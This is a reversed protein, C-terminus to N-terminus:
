VDEETILGYQMISKCLDEHVTRINWEYLKFIILILRMITNEIRINIGDRIQIM